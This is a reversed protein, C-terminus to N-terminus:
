VSGELRFRKRYENPSVKFDSEFARSFGDVSMFGTAAAVGTVGVGQSLLMRAADLRLRKIYSAPPMGFSKRFSRSFHRPSLGARSALLEVSLDRDLHSAAWKCVEALKGTAGSQMELPLSFQAQSGPRRLFVVLEKAVQMAAKGGLDTEIIDLALDIGSTVGGSSHYRGDHMFLADAKVSVKPYRAQLDKAHAWHTTVSRGDVLGAEALAYAGTCVAVVRKFKAQHRSLWASLQCLTKSERIGKGGPVIVIDATPRVPLNRDAVLRIGSESRVTLDSIAWSVVEYAKRGDSDIATAFAESPGAVDIANVHDYLLIAVRRKTKM